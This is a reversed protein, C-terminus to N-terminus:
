EPVQKLPLVQDPNGKTIRQTLSPTVDCLFNTFDTFKVGTENNTQDKIKLFLNRLSM